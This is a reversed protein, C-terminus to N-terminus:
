AVSFRPDGRLEREATFWDELEHGAEGGRACYLEFARRRIDGENVDSIDIAVAPADPRPLSIVNDRRRRAPTAM